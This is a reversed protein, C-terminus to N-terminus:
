PVDHGAHFTSAETEPIDVGPLAGTLQGAVGPQDHESHRAVALPQGGRRLLTDDPHPVEGPARLDALEATMAFSRDCAVEREVACSDHASGPVAGRADPVDIRGTRRDDEFPM